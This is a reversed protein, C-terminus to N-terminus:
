ANTQAVVHLPIIDWENEAIRIVKAVDGQVLAATGNLTVLDDDTNEATITCTGAGVVRVIFSTGPLLQLDESEEPIIIDCATAFSKRVYANHWSQTATTSVATDNVVKEAGITFAGEPVRATLIGAVVDFLVRGAKSAIRTPSDFPLSLRSLKM